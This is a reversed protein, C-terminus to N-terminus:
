LDPGIIRRTSEINDKMFGLHRAGDPKEDCTAASDDGPTEIRPGKGAQEKRYIPGALPCREYRGATYVENQHDAWCRGANMMGPMAQKM